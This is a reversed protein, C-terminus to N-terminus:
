ELSTSCHTFHIGLYPIGPSPYGCPYHLTDGPISFHNLDLRHIEEMSTQPPPRPSPVPRSPSTSIQKQIEERGMMYCMILGM